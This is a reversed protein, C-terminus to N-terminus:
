CRYGKPNFNTLQKNGKKSVIFDEIDPQNSNLIGMNAGRRIGGQKIVETMKDYLTMFAIPGSSVGHTTKVFDGKPRIKSFNYGCGGGSKFILAARKLTEMISELSDEIGLVFCAMGMGLPNGFNALAPTNPMFKKEIMLKFYDEIEKEYEDFEGKEFMKLIEILKYKISGERNLRKYVRVIGEIHYRNFQFKGVKVKGVYDEINVEEEPHPENWFKKFVKEDHLISPITIHIAVREFLQKPSEIIKGSPDKNLYRAALVRLANVDFKKDIEDLYDKNLIQMKEVTKESQDVAQATIEHTTQTSKAIDAITSTMEESASAINSFNHTAQEMLSVVTGSNTNVNQTITVVDNLKLSMDKANQNMKGSFESLDMSSGNLSEASKHVGKFLKQMTQTHKTIKATNEVNEWYWSFNDKAMRIFMFSSFACLIGVGVGLSTGNMFGWITIPMLILLTFNRSISFNPGLSNTAGAALGCNIVLNFMFPWELPYVQAM